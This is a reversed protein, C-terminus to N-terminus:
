KMKMLLRRFPAHSCENQCTSLDDIALCHGPCNQTGANLKEPVHEEICDIFDVIPLVFTTGCEEIEHVFYYYARELTESHLAMGIPKLEHLEFIDSKCIQMGCKPCEKLIRSQNHISQLSQELYTNTQM